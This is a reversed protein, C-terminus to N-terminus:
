TNHNINSTRCLRAKTARLQNCATKNRRSGHIHRHTHRTYWVLTHYTGPERHVLYWTGPVVHKVRLILYVFCCYSYSYVLTREVCRHYTHKFSWISTVDYVFVGLCRLVLYICRTSTHIRAASPSPVNINKGRKDMNQNQPGLKHNKKNKDLSSQYLPRSTFHQQVSPKLGINSKQWKIM